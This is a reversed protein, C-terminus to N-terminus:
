LRETCFKVLRSALDPQAALRASWDRYHSALRPLRASYSSWAPVIAGDQAWARMMSEVESDAHMRALFARLKVLHTGHEQPYPQWVFPRGAWHARIWSDEGRVLNLDASWLLRDYEDQSLFPVRQVTLMADHVSHGAAPAEGFHAVLAADAVGDPVLVRWRTPGGAIAGFWPLLPAHPYCFLTALREDPENAIGRRALWKRQEDSGVFADRRALLDAERLLGGTREDFGPYYFHEVAGDHPKTSRLGHHTAVWDEASLYELQVWLPRRPAGALSARLAPPPDAGFASVIVDDPQGRPRTEPRRGTRAIDPHPETRADIANASAAPTEDHWREVVIAGRGADEDPRAGLRELVEPRDITLRVRWGHERALQRALRWCVGADGFNDVVRCLIRAALTM